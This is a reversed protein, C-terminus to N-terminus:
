LGPMLVQDIGHIIGNSAVIDPKVVRAGNLWIGDADRRVRLKSGEATTISGGPIGEAIMKGSVVHYSLLNVLRTRNEPRMLERLKGEPLAKFAEDTPAFITFPGEENLMMELGATKVAKVFITFEPQSKATEVVNRKATSDIAPVFPIIKEGTNVKPNVEVATLPVGGLMALAVLAHITTKVKTKVKTKMAQFLKTQPFSESRM